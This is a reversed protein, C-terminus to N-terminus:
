GSRCSAVVDAAADQWHRLKIGFRQRFASCDLRSNAPRKAISPYDRTAVAEVVPQAGGRKGSESVIFAALGHWSTSGEGALHYLGGPEVRLIPAVKLIAMALDNASTPNGLQDDVVRLRRKDNAARLMTKLFNSGYPSFLWSTRLILAHPHADRVAREGEFKSRGYVNLPGTEDEEAYASSKCGDFVYDTSIHILPVELQAAARAAAAAGDRNVAFARQAESEAKEVATYAAANVVLDPRRRVIERFADDPRELDLEPRGVFSLDFEPHQRSQEALASALQGSQGTVLIRMM